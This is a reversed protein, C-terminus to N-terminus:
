RLVRGITTSTYKLTAAVFSAPQSSPEFRAQAHRRGRAEGESFCKCQLGAVRFLGPELGAKARGGPILRRVALERCGEIPGGMLGELWHWSAVGHKGLFYFDGLQLSTDDLDAGTPIEGYRWLRPVQWQMGLHFARM